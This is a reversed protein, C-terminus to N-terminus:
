VEEKKVEETEEEEKEENVDEEKTLDKPAERKESQMRKKMNQALYM